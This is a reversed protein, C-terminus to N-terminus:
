RFFWSLLVANFFLDVFFLLSCLPGGELRPRPGPGIQDLCPGGAGPIPTMDTSIHCRIFYLSIVTNKVRLSVNKKEVENESKDTQKVEPESKKMTTQQVLDIQSQLISLIIDEMSKNTLGKIGMTKSIEILEKKTKEKLELLTYM